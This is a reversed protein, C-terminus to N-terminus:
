KAVAAMWADLSAPLEGTTRFIYEKWTSQKSAHGDYHSIVIRDSYRSVGFSQGERWGWGSFGIELRDYSTSSKMRHINVQEFPPSKPALARIEELAKKIPLESMKIHGPLVKEGVTETVLTDQVAVTWSGKEMGDAVVDLLSELVKLAVDPEEAVSFYDYDGAVDTQMEPWSFGDSVLVFEGPAEDLTCATMTLVAILGFSLTKM